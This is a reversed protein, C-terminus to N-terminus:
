LNEPISYAATAVREERGSSSTVTSYSLTYPVYPHEEEGKLGSGSIATIGSIRDVNATGVDNKQIPRETTGTTTSSIPACKGKGITSHEDDDDVDVDVGNRGGEDENINKIDNQHLDRVDDIWHM